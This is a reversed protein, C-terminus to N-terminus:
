ARVELQGGSGYCLSTSWLPAIYDSNALETLIICMVAIDFGLGM